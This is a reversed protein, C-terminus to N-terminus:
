REGKKEGKREGEEETEGGKEEEAGGERRGGGGGRGRVGEKRRRGGVRGGERGGEEKVAVPIVPFQLLCLLVNQPRVCCSDTCSHQVFQSLLNSHYHELGILPQDLNIV